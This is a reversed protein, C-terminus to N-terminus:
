FIIGRGTFSKTENRRRTLRWQPRGLGRRELKQLNQFLENVEQLCHKMSM